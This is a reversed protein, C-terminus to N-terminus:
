AVKENQTESWGSYPIGVGQLLIDNQWPCFPRAWSRPKTDCMSLVLMKM